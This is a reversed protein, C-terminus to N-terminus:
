LPADMCNKSMVYLESVNCVTRLLCFCKKGPTWRRGDGSVMNVGGFLNQKFEEINDSEPFRGSIGSIVIEDNAGAQSGNLVLAPMDPVYANM